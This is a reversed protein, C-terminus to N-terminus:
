SGPRWRTLRRAVLDPIAPASRRAPTASCPSGSWSPITPPSWRRARRGVASRRWASRRRRARARDRARARQHRRHTPRGVDRALLAATVPDPGPNFVTVFATPTSTPSRARGLPPAAVPTGSRARRRRHTSSSPAWSALLEAVVPSAAGTPTARPRRRGRLRHRAPGAHDVDIAISAAAGAGPDTERTSRRRGGVLVVQVEVSRTPTPSTPSRSRHADGGNDTTGAAFAGRHRRAVRAGLSLAIGERTPGGDPSPATSSRRRSPSSGARRPRARADAVREQRLVSDQVPITVRSRRPVVLAQLTTPSRCAPTPSSPSTSSPTTASRTSCCSTSSRARRRDHRGRLVLRDGAARTCPEVAVDDGHELQTRCRRGPRRGGRRRRRARADRPHRRGRM